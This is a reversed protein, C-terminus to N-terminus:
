QKGALGPRRVERTGKAPRHRRLPGPRNPGEPRRLREDNVTAAIGILDGAEPAAEAGLSKWSIAMEYFTKGNKHTVIAKVQEPTLKGQPLTVSDYTVSRFAEVGSKALAVNIETTRRFNTDLINDTTACNM